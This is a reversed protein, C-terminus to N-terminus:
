GSRPEMAAHHLYKCNNFEPCAKYRRTLEVAQKKMVHSIEDRLDGNRAPHPRFAVPPPARKEIGPFSAAGLIDLREDVPSTPPSTPQAHGHQSSYWSDADVIRAYQAVNTRVQAVSEEAKRHLLGALSALEDNHGFQDGDARVRARQQSTMSSHHVCTSVCTSSLPGDAAATATAASPYCSPQLRKKGRRPQEKLM